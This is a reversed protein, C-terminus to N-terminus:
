NAAIFEKEKIGAKLLNFYQDIHNKLITINVPILKKKKLSAHFYEIVANAYQSGRDSHFILGKEPKRNKISMNFADIVLQKTMQKNIAWGVAKRSYLDIVIALYLWGEATPIYTIDSVWVKNPPAVDFKRNLLNEKLPLNHNSDTTKKFKRKQIAKLGLVQMLRAIRKINCKHGDKLLQRHIRPTGYRGNHQWYIKTIEQKLQKNKLERQTPKRNLWSYYGSRSVVLIQCMKTVPFEQSHDRIFGYIVETKEFLHRSSKKM